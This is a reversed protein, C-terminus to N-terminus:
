GRGTDRLDERFVSTLRDLSRDGFGLLDLDQTPRHPSGDWVAFLM